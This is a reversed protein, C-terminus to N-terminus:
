HIENWATMKYSSFPESEMKRWVVIVPFEKLDLRKEEDLRCFSPWGFMCSYPCVSAIKVVLFLCPARTLCRCRKNTSYSHWPKNNEKMDNLLSFFSSPLYLDGEPDCWRIIRLLICNHGVDLTPFQNRRGMNRINPRKKKKNNGSNIYWRVAVVM